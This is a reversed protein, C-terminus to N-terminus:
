RWIGRIFFRLIRGLNAKPTIFALCLFYMINEKMIKLIEKKQKKTVQFYVLVDLAMIFKTRRIMWYIYRNLECDRIIADMAVIYKLRGNKDFFNKGSNSVSDAYYYYNYLVDNLLLIKIEKHNSLVKFLFHMDECLTLETDFVIDQLLEKRFFKNCSFGGVKNDCLIYKELQEVNCIKKRMYSCHKIQIENDKQLVRNYGTVIMNVDRHKEFLKSLIYLSNEVATDDADCFGIIDGSAYKLGTNRAGSVGKKESQYLLIQKYIKKLELCLDYTKDSSYDDVMILELNFYKQCIFSEVCREITDQANYMPIIISIKMTNKKDDKVSFRVGLM